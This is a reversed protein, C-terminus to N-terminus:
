TGVLRINSWFGVKKIHLSHASFINNLFKYNYQSAWYVYTKIFLNKICTETKQSDNSM